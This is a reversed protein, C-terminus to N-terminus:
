PENSSTEVRKLENLSLCKLGNLGMKLENLIMKFINLTKYCGNPDILTM